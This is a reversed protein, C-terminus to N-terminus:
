DNALYDPAPGRFVLSYFIGKIRSNALGPADLHIDERGTHQELIFIRETDEPPATVYVPRSLGSAVRETTLSLTDNVDPPQVDGPPVFPAPVCGWTVIVAMVSIEIIRRHSMRRQNQM